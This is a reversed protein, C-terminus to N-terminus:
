ETQSESVTGEELESKRDRQEEAIEIERKRGEVRMRRSEREGVRIGVIM